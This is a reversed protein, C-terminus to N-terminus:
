IGGNEVPMRGDMRRIHVTQIESLLIAATELVVAM